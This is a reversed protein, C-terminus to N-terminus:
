EENENEKEREASFLFLVGAVSQPREGTHWATGLGALAGNRKRIGVLNIKRVAEGFPLHDAIVEVDSRVNQRVELCAGNRQDTKRVTHPAPAEVLLIRRTVSRLADRRIFHGATMVFSVGAVGPGVVGLGEGPTRIQRRDFQMRNNM